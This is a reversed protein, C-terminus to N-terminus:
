DIIPDLLELRDESIVRRRLRQTLEETFQFLTALPSACSLEPALLYARFFGVDQICSLRPRKRLRPDTM